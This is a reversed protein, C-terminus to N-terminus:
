RGGIKRRGREAKAYMMGGRTKRAMDGKMGTMRNMGYSLRSAKGKHVDRHKM